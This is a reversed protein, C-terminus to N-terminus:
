FWGCQTNVINIEWPGTSAETAFIWIGQAASNFVPPPVPWIGTDVDLVKWDTLLEWTFTTANLEMIRYAVWHGTSAQMEMRYRPLSWNPVRVWGDYMENGCSNSGNFVESQWVDTPEDPDEGPDLLIWGEIQSNFLASSGCGVSSLHNDGIFSGWGHLIDEHFLTIPMHSGNDRYNITAFDFVIWQTTVGPPRYTDAVKTLGSAAGNSDGVISFNSPLPCTSTSAASSAQGGSEIPLDINEFNQLVLDREASIENLASQTMLEDSFTYNGSDDRVAKLRYINGKSDVDLYVPPMKYVPEPPAEFEEGPPLNALFGLRNVIDNPTLDAALLPSCFLLTLILFIIKNFKM